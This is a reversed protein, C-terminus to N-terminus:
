GRGGTGHHPRLPHQEASIKDTQVAANGDDDPEGIAINFIMGLLYRKGYTVASGTAHTKTMADGGKAGKGDAPMEIEYIRFAGCRHGVRCIVSIHNKQKALDTNYSLNFGHKTYIPRM